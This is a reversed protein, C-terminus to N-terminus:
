FIKQMLIKSQTSKETGYQGREETDETYNLRYPFGIQICDTKKSLMVPPVGHKYCM